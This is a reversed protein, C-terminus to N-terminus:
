LAVGLVGDVSGQSTLCAEYLKAAFDKASAKDRSAAQALSLAWKGMMKEPYMRALVRMMAEVALEEQALARATIGMDAIAACEQASQARPAAEARVAFSLAAALLVLLLMLRVWFAQVHKLHEGLSRSFSDFPAHTM